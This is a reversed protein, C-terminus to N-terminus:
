SLICQEPCLARGVLGVLGSPVRPRTGPKVLVPGFPKSTPLVSRVHQAPVCLDQAAIRFGERDDQSLRFAVERVWLNMSVDKIVDDIAPLRAPTLRLLSKSQKKQYTCARFM